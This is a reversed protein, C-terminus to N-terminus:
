PTGLYTGQHYNHARTAPDIGIAWLGDDTIWYFGGDDQRVMNRECLHRMARDTDSGEHFKLGAVNMKSMMELAAREASNLNRLGTM